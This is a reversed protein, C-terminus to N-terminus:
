CFVVGRLFFAVGHRLYRRGMEGRKVRSIAGSVISQNM